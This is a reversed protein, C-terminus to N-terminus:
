ADPLEAPDPDYYGDGGPLAAPGADVDIVEAVDEGDDDGDFLTPGEDERRADAIKAAQAALLPLAFEEDVITAETTGLKHVRTMFPTDEIPKHTVSDVTTRLLVFVEEGTGYAVPDVALAASLGDGAKTISIQSGAERRGEFTGLQKM